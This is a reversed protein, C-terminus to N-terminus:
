PRPGTRNGIESLMRDLVAEPTMWTSDIVIAGMAPKLPAVARQSDQLDRQAVQNQYVDPAVKQPPLIIYQRQFRVQPDADLYFKLDANPFVVTGMDRGEAVLGGSKALDRQISLLGQRVGPFASIISSAQAVEPLRLYPTAETNDVWIADEALRIQIPRCFLEVAQQDQASIGGTLVKWAVARYLLGSHLCRVGLRRALATASSSKGAGSPGDITIVWERHEFRGM